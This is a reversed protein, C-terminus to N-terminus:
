KREKGIRKKTREKLHNVVREKGTKDDQKKNEGKWNEECICTSESKIKKKM